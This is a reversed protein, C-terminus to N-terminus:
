SVALFINKQFELSGIYDIESEEEGSFLM